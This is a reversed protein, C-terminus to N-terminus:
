QMKCICEPSQSIDVKKISMELGDYTILGDNSVPMGLLYKASEMAQMSGIVGPTPGIVGPQDITTKDKIGNPFLCGLCPGKGPTITMLQGYYEGVGAHVLPKKHSICIDNLIFRTSFNDLCDIIIDYDPIIKDALKEDIFQDYIATKLEPNLALLRKSATSAKPKGIDEVTFLIQRNLNSLSVTDGDCLGIHGIGMATLYYLVPAGLGGCGAVLVSAETFKQQGKEGIEKMMIQRTYIEQQNKNM